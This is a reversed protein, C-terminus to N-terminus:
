RSKESVKMFDRVAVAPDKLINMSMQMKCLAHPTVQPSRQVSEFATQIMRAAACRMARELLRRSMKTSLRRQAAYRQWFAKMARRMAVEEYPAAAVAEAFNMDPGLPLSFIWFTLYSQFIAGTDWCDDGIDAMEWDIVKLEGRVDDGEAKDGESTTPCFVLNEWKIDGHILANTRWSRKIEKLARPFEPYQRLISIIQANGNSLQNIYSPNSEHITLIWPLNRPFIKLEPADTDTIKVESHYKGLMEGQLEAIEIPFRGLRRHYEWLSEGKLLGLVMAYRQRDFLHFEPLMPRLAALARHEHESDFAAQYCAAEREFSVTMDPTRKRVQKIFFGPSQERVVRFNYNRSSQEVVMFDGDIVSKLTLLQREALYLAVNEPGLFM